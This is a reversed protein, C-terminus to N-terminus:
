VVNLFNNTYIRCMTSKSHLEQKLGHIANVCILRLGHMIVILYACLYFNNGFKSLMVTLPVKLLIRLDPWSTSLLSSYRKM